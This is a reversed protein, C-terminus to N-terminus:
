DNKDENNIIGVSEKALKDAEENGPVGTHGEVKMFRIKIKDKVSQMFDYYAITGTKMRAWQGTAWMEIGLHDYIITLDKLNLELAKKVASMSGLIEGSANAMTAMEEDNGSGKLIYKKDKAILFGGYGYTKTKRNYSGDTFAYNEPLNNPDFEILPDIKLYANAEEESEFSKYVANKYGIVQKKCENWSYFKGTKRGKKVVYIKKKSDM